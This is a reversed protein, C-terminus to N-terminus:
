IVYGWLQKYKASSMPNLDNPTLQHFGKQNFYNEYALIDSNTIFFQNMSEIYFPNDKCNYRGSNIGWESCAFLKGRERAEQAWAGIGWPGGKYEAYYQKDWVAQTELPPYGDYYNVGFVDVYEDGPYYDMISTKQAGKKINCWETLITPNESRLIAAIRQWTAVFAPGDTGCFWPRSGGNTEWGIRCIVDTLGSAAVGRAYQRYYEDYSGGAALKWNAPYKKGDHSKPLMAIACSVRSGSRKATVFGGKLSTIETWTNHPCWCTITDLSRGRYTTFGKYNTISAGTSWYLGSRPGPGAGLAARAPTIPSLQEPLLAAGGGLLAAGGLARRLANRRSCSPPNIEAM